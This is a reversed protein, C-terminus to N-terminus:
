AAIERIVPEMAEEAALALRAIDEPDVLVVFALSLALVADLLASDLGCLKRTAANTNRCFLNPAAATIAAVAIAGIAAPNLADALTAIQAQLEVRLTDIFGLVDKRLDDIGTFADQAATNIADTLDRRLRDIGDAILDRVDALSVGAVAAELDTM